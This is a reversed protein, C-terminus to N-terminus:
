LLTYIIINHYSSKRHPLLLLQYYSQLSYNLVNGVYQDGWVMEWELLTCFDQYKLHHPLTTGQSAFKGDWPGGSDRSSILLCQVKAASAGFMATMACWAHQHHLCDGSISQMPLMVM